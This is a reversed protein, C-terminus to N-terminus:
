INGACRECPVPDGKLGLFLSLAVAALVSVTVILTQTDFCSTTAVGYFLLIPDIITLLRPNNTPKRQLKSPFLALLHPLAHLFIFLPKLLLLYLFLILLTTSLFLPGILIFLYIVIINNDTHPALSHRAIKETALSYDYM